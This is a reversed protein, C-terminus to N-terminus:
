FDRYNRRMKGHQKKTVRDSFRGILLYLNRGSLLDSCNLGTAVCGPSEVGDVLRVRKTYPTYRWFRHRKEVRSASTSIHHENVREINKGGTTKLTAVRLICVERLLIYYLRWPVGHIIVFPEGYQQDLPESRNKRSFYRRKLRSGSCRHARTDRNNYFLFM